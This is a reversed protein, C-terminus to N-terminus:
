EGLPQMRGVCVGCGGASMSKAEEAVEGEELEALRGEASDGGERGEEGGEDNPASEWKRKKREKSAAPKFSIPARARTDVTTDEGSPRPQPGIEPHTQPGFIVESSAGEEVASVEASGQDTAGDDDMDQVSFENDSELVDDNDIATNPEVAAMDADAEHDVGYDVGDGVGDAARDGVRHAEVGGGLEVAEDGSGEVGGATSGDEIPAGQGKGELDEEGAVEGLVQGDLGALFGAVRDEVPDLEALFGKVRDEVSTAGADPDTSGVAAGAAADAGNAGALLEPPCDWRVVNSYVNWYYYGGSTDDYCQQWAASLAAEPDSAAAPPATQPATAGTPDTTSAQNDAEDEDDDDDDYAGLLGLLPNVEAPIEAAPSSVVPLPSAPESVPADATPEARLVPAGIDLTPRRGGAWRKGM